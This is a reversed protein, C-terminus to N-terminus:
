EDDANMRELKTALDRARIVVEDDGCAGTMAAGRRNHARMAERALERAEDLLDTAETLSIAIKGGYQLALKEYADLTAPETGDGWANIVDQMKALEQAKERINM